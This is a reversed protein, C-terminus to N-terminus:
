TRSRHDRGRRNSPVLVLTVWEVNFKSEANKKYSWLCFLPVINTVKQLMSSVEMKNACNGSDCEFFINLVQLNTTLIFKPSQYFTQAQRKM